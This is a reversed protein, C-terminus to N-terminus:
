MAQLSKLASVKHQEPGHTHDRLVELDNGLVKVKGKCSMTTKRRECEFATWGSALDKQKVYLFGQHCLKQGGRTTKLYEMQSKPLHHLQKDASNHIGGSMAPM